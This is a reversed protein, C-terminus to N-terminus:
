QPLYPAVFGAIQGGPQGVFFIQFQEALGNANLKFQFGLLGFDPRKAGVQQYNNLNTDIPANLASSPTLSASKYYVDFFRKYRHGSVISQRGSDSNGPVLLQADRHTIATRREDWKEAVRRRM